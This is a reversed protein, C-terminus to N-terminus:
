VLIIYIYLGLLTIDGLQHPQWNDWLAVCWSRCCFSMILSAIRRNKDPSYIHRQKSSVLCYPEPKRSGKMIFLQNLEMRDWWCKLVCYCYPVTHTGKGSLREKKKGWEKCTLQSLSDRVSRICSCMQSLLRESLPFTVSLRQSENILAVKLTARWTSNYARPFQITIGM